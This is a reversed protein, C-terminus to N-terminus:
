FGSAQTGSAQGGFGKKGVSTGLYDLGAKKQEDRLKQDTLEKQRREERKDLFTGFADLIGSSADAYAGSSGTRGAGFSSASGAGPKNRDRYLSFANSMGSFADGISGSGQEFYQGM